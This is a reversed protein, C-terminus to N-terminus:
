QGKLAFTKEQLEDKLSILQNRLTIDFDLSKLQSVFMFRDLGDLVTDLYLPDKLELAEKAASLLGEGTFRKYDLDGKSLYFPVQYNPKEWKSFYFFTSLFDNRFNSDMAHTLKLVFTDKLFLPLYTEIVKGNKTERFCLFAKDGLRIKEIKEAPYRKILDNKLALPGKIFIGNNLIYNIPKSPNLTLSSELFLELEESQQWSFMEEGNNNLSDLAPFLVGFFPNLEKGIKIMSLVSPGKEFYFSLNRRLLKDYVMYQPRYENENGWKTMKFSPILVFRDRLFGSSTKLGSGAMRYISNPKLEKQTLKSVKSLVLPTSTFFIEYLPSFIALSFVFPLFIFFGFFSFKSDKAVIVTQSLYEKLTKKGFLLPAETLPFLLISPIEYMSRLVGGLRKWLFGGPSRLGFIYQSLSTGLILTFFARFAIYNLIVLPWSYGISKELDEYPGLVYFFSYINISIFFDAIVSLIRKLM